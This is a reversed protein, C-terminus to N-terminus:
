RNNGVLAQVRAALKQEERDHRQQTLEARHRYHWIASSAEGQCRPLLANFRADWRSLMARDTLDASSLEQYLSRMTQTCNSGPDANAHPSFIQPIVSVFAAVILYGIAGFWLVLAIKKGLVM